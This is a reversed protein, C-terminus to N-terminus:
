CFYECINCCLFNVRSISLFFFCRFDTMFTKRVFVCTVCCGRHYSTCRRMYIGFTVIFMKRKSLYHSGSKQLANFPSIPYPFTWVWEVWTRYWIDLARYGNSHAIYTYFFQTPQYTGNSVVFTKNKIHVIQEQNVIDWRMWDFFVNVM